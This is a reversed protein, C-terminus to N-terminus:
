FSFPDSDCKQGAGLIRPQPEIEISSPTLFVRWLATFGPRADAAIQAGQDGGSSLGLM